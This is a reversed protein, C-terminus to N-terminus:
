PPPPGAALLAGAGRVRLCFPQEFKSVQSSNRGLAAGCPQQVRLRVLDVEVQVVKDGSSPQPTGQTESGSSSAAAQLPVVM